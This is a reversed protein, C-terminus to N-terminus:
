HSHLHITAVPQPFYDEHIDQHVSLLHDESQYQSLLLIGPPGPLVIYFVEFM